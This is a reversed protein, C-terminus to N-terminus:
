KITSIQITHTDQATKLLILQQHTNLLSTLMVLEVHNVLESLLAMEM